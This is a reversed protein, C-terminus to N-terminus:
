GSAAAAFAPARTVQGAPTPVYQGSKVSKHNLVCRCNYVEGPPGLPDGPHRLLSDGVIFPTGVPQTQGDAARHTERVKADGRSRWVRIIQRSTDPDNQSVATAASDRAGAVTATAAQTAVGSAWTGAEQSMSERVSATIEAMSGGAQDAQNVLDTVKGALGLAANGVMTIVADAAAQAASSVAGSMVPDSADSALDAALGTAAALAAATIIASVAQQAEDQWRAGDVALSADLAQNGIRADQKYRLDPQWHRTGKRTKPSTLRALTRQM